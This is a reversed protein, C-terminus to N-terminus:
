KKLESEIIGQYESLHDEIAPQLYPQPKMKSTGMEVYVAYDVDRYIGRMGGAKVAMTNEDEMEHRITSRLSGGLYGKIGTSEETGVPCLEIAYGEIKGGVIELIIEKKDTVEKLIENINNTEIQYEIAM